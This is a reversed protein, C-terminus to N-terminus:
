MIYIAIHNLNSITLFIEYNKKVLQLAAKMNVMLKVNTIENSTTMIAGKIINTFM